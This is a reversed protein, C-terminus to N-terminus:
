VSKRWLKSLLSECKNQLKKGCKIATFTFIGIRVNKNKKNSTIIQFLKQPCTGSLNLAQSNTHEAENISFTHSIRATHEKTDAVSEGTSLIKM